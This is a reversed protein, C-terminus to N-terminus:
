LSVPHGGGVVVCRDSHPTSGKAPQADIHTYVRRLGAVRLCTRLEDPRWEDVALPIAKVAAHRDAGVVEQLERRKAQMHKPSAGWLNSPKTEGGDAWHHIHHADVFRTYTCGPLRCGKGRANLLRRLAPPITRTKRGVNLPEGQDNEILAVASADCALRRATEAALSPGEEIRM